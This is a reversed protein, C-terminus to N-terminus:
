KPLESLWALVPPLLDAFQYPVTEHTSDPVVILRSGPAALAYLQEVEAAPTIKDGDAAVFLARVPHRALVTTTDLEAANTGLVAPLQKLGARIFSKPLWGAYQSRLNLVANSLGAYPAIAVATRVRPDVAEWRLAMVAGYSEGIAAVPERLQGGRTLQDLLQDLDQVEQLGYYIRKGTSKGHGRLDVLVCRWGAQALELAWPMMSFQALAYGHLLVVTGRPQATWSNTQAPLVTRFEYQTRKGSSAMWNTSSVTLRYDAPEIIRYCLQAAPPGVAAYHRAFNTFINPQFDLWVPAEPAFWTPYSNPAQVMRHAMFSGCGATGGILLVLLLLGCFRASTSLSIRTWGKKM